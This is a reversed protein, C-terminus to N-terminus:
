TKRLFYILEDEILCSKLKEEPQTYDNVHMPIVEFGANKLREPYDLGYWRVHDYQGFAKEREKPETISFDEYTKTRSTDLPVQAICFGGPKLVRILETMAKHDDEIHELVHNCIVVDFTNEAFPLDLINCHVDAIPSELDATTYDLNKLGRFLKYFAQEPAIHLVKLNDRFFNTKNKLLLWMMRHRELSLCNPCLANERIKVGYPLMKRFSKECIPCQFKNGSYYVSALGRFALSARILVPRPVNRISWNIIAKM